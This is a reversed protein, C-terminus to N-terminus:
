EAGGFQRDAETCHGGRGANDIAFCVFASDVIISLAGETAGLVFWGIFGAIMGVMYGYLSGGETYCAAHVWAGFGLFLTTVVRAASLLLKALRYATWSHTNVSVPNNHGHDLYRMSSITRSSDVLGQSNIIANTLALPNTLSIVSAPAFNYIFIQIFGVARSPLIFLPLRVLLRLFSSFCITGFNTSISYQFAASTVSSPSPQPFVHRHFYWQSVVASTTARQIGSIVGWSWMYMLIYFAGLAWSRPDLVWSVMGHNLVTHGRLFVRTFMGFWVWSAVLFVGVSACNFIMLPPNTSLISCALKIIGLSRNLAHRGKYMFHVWLGALVLPVLSSWRMVKDQTTNGGYGSRYSMVLPYIFLGVMAFPVSVISVYFLATSYKRMLFVWAASVCIAVFTDLLLFSSSKRLMAYITDGLPVSAPVDTKLWIMLSTACMCSILGLYVTGWIADFKPMNPSPYQVEPPIQSNDIGDNIESEPTEHPMFGSPNFPVSVGPLVTSHTATTHKLPNEMTLDDPPEDDDLPLNKSGLQISELHPNLKSSPMDNNSRIMSQYPTGSISSTSSQVSKFQTNAKNAADELDFFANEEDEYEDDESVPYPQPNRSPGQMSANVIYRPIFQSGWNKGSGYVSPVYRSDTPRSGSQAEEDSGAFDATSYFLPADDSPTANFGKAVSIRAQSQSLFKSADLLNALSNSEPSSLMCESFM